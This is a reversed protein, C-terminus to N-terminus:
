TDWVAIVCYVIQDVDNCAIMTGFVVLFFSFFIFFKKQFFYDSLDLGLISGDVVDNLFSLM